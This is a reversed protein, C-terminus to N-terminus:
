ITPRRDTVDGSMKGAPETAVALELPDIDNWLVTPSVDSRPQEAKERSPKKVVPRPADTDVDTIVLCAREILAVTRHFQILV